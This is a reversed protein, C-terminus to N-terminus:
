FYIFLLVVACMNQFLTCLSGELDDLTTSKPVLRFRTYSKRNPRLLLSTSGQILLAINGCKLSILAKTRWFAVKGCGVGIGAFMKPQEGLLLDAINPDTSLLCGFSVSRSIIKSSNWGIRDRYRLTAFLSASLCLSLRSATGEGSSGVPPNGDLDGLRAALAGGSQKMGEAYCRATFVPYIKNSV